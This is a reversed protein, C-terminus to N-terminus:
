RVMEGKGTRPERTAAGDATHNRHCKGAPKGPHANDVARARRHGSKGRPTKEGGATALGASRITTRWRGAAFGRM